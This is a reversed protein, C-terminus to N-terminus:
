LFKIWLRIIRQNKIKSQNKRKKHARVKTKKKMLLRSVTKDMKRLNEKMMRNLKKIKLKDLNLGLYSWKSKITKLPHM